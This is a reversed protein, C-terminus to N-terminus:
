ASQPCDEDAWTVGSSLSSRMWSTLAVDLRSQVLQILDRFEADNLESASGRLERRVSASIQKQIRLLWRAVTARHVRYAQGIGDINVGAGYHLRLVNRERPELASVANRLATQFATLYRARDLKSELSSELLALAEPMAMDAPQRRLEARSHDLAARGAVVRLWAGLPGKGTYKEIRAPPGIFLKHRLEQVVEAIFEDDARVRAVGQRLCSTYEADFHAHARPDSGACALALYLEAAHPPYPDEGSLAQVRGEYEPRTLSVGPWRLQLARFPEALDADPM